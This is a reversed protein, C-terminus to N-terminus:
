QVKQLFPIKVGTTPATATATDTTEATQGYAISSSQMLGLALAIVAPIAIYYAFIRKNM